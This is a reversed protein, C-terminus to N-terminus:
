LVLTTKMEFIESEQDDNRHLRFRHQGALWHSKIETKANNDCTVCM